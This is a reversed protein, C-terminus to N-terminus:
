NTKKTSQWISIAWGLTALGIGAYVTGPQFNFQVKHLGESLSVSRLIEYAAEIRVRNGDVTAKWGPYVIESLILKGPGNVELSIRNPESKVLIENQNAIGANESEGELWARERWYENLYVNKNFKGGVKILGLSNVEFDSVVYKVNLLGLKEPDPTIGLNDTVPNGSSFPPITVSYGDNGVGTAATMYEAYSAIQLPDVGDAMELSYEAALHQPISYSPSYIRFIGPDNILFNVTEEDY